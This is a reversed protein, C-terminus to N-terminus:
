EGDGIRLLTELERASDSAASHRNALYFAQSTAECFRFGLAGGDLLICVDFCGDLFQLAEVACSNGNM